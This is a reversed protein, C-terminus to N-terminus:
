ILLKGNGELVMGLRVVLLYIEWYMENWFYYKIYICAVCVYM